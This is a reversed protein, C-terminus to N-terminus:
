RGMGADPRNVGDVDGRGVEALKESSLRDGGGGGSGVVVEGLHMSQDSELLLWMTQAGRHRDGHDGCHTAHRAHPGPSGAGFDLPGFFDDGARRARWEIFGEENGVWGVCLSNSQQWLVSCGWCCWTSAFPQQQQQWRLQHALM